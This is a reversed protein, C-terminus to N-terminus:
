YVLVFLSSSTKNKLTHIESEKATLRLEKLVLLQISNSKNQIQFWGLEKEFEVFAEAHSAMTDNDSENATGMQTFDNVCDYIQLKGVTAMSDVHKAYNEHTM